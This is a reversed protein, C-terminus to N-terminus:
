IVFFDSAALPPHGDLIAFLIQAGAGSGDADFYLNGTAADYVIRDDADQAATATVFGGANIAGFIPGFIADDLTIHDTGSVFDFIHDVNGAGLATTFVFQDVGGYGILLDNGGKGDIINAGDNGTITNAIANGTLDMATSGASNVAELTEIEASLTYSVGTAVRDNGEGAFEILQDGISDVYYTDNGQGGYMVDSGAGGSLFDNGARAILLDSGGAGDLFNVGDNGVIHNASSSGALDMADTATSNVAELLEITSGEHLTYSVSTAIRDNGEAANEQVRDGANDVYYTDDGAGGSMQDAGAGGDLFDNGGLAIMVDNGGGGRLLNVGENAIITNASDSGTLDMANTDTTNVTELLEVESGAQLAYSISTAIRDIGEGAAENAQDGLDDVYYTDDGTGGYMLDAGTGGVLFDTGGLGALVDNGGDGRLINVGANGVITNAFANGTLDLAGTGSQTIAELIEIESGAALAYGASTAIRDMGEGALETAGDGGDDVYYTDDGTGGFMADIGAGGILVDAASGGYLVDSGIGASLFDAGAGGDLINNGADTEIRDNGAYGYIRGGVTGLRGDFIDDGIYMKVDGLIQGDNRITISKTDDAVPTNLPFPVLSDVRGVISGAGITVSVHPEVKIFGASLNSDEILVPGLNSERLLVEAGTNVHRLIIVSSSPPPSTWTAVWITEFNQVNGADFVDGGRLQIDLVDNGTGGDLLTGFVQQLEQEFQSHFFTIIDDGAGLDIAGTVLTDNGISVTDGTASGTLSGITSRDYISLSSFGSGALISIDGDPANFFRLANFFRGEARFDVVIAQLGSFGEIFGNTRLELIEVNQIHPGGDVNSDAEFIILRDIGDGGDLTPVLSVGASPSLYFSDDGAGLEVKMAFENGAVRSVFVDNGGGLAVRGRIVGSNEVRDAGDSGAIVLADVSNDASRIVGGAQNVIVADEGEIVIAAIAPNSTIARGSESNVFRVRDGTIRVAPADTLTANNTYVSDNQSVVVPM